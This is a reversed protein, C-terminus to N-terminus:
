TRVKLPITFAAGGINAHLVAADSCALTLKVELRVTNVKVSMFPVTWGVSGSSFTVNVDAPTVGYVPEGASDVVTIRIDNYM